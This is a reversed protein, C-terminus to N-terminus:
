QSLRRWRILSGARVTTGNVADATNQAWQLTVTANSTVMFSGDVVVFKDGDNTTANVIVTTMDAVVASQAAVTTPGIGAHRRWSGNATFAGASVAFAHKIDDADAQGYILLLEFFYTEGGVAAFALENDNQLTTNTVTEDSGKVVFGDWFSGGAAYLEQLAGEVQTESTFGGADAISVASADHADSADNLHNTLETPTGDLGAISIEDAGGNEHRASHDDLLNDLEELSAQVTTGTGSLNTSDVFIASGAHVATADDLHTQLDTPIGDLGALSIEDAGGNEHRASHDDLLNDLEELSGQVHTATGSLNTSDVSVASADHADTADDLHDNLGSDLEFASM